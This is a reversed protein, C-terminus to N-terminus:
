YKGTKKFNDLILKKGLPSKKIKDLAEAKMTRAKDATFGFKRGVEEGTMGEEMFARLVQELRFNGIGKLLQEYLVKGLTSMELDFNDPLEYASSADKSKPGFESM